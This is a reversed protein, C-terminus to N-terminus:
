KSNGNFTLETRKERWREREREIDTQRDTKKERETKREAERERDRQRDKQTETETEREGMLHKRKVTEKEKKGDDKKGARRLFDFAQNFDKNSNSVYYVSEM